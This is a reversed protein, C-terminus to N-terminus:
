RQYLQCAFMIELLEKPPLGEVESGVAVLSASKMDDPTRHSEVVSSNSTTSDETGANFIDHPFSPFSIPNAGAVTLDRNPRNPSPTSAISPPSKLAIFALNDLGSVKRHNKPSHNRQTDINVACGTPQQPSLYVNGNFFTNHLPRNESESARQSVLSKSDVSRHRDSPREDLPATLSYKNHNGKQLAERHEELLAELEGSLLSCAKIRTAVLATRYNPSMDPSYDPSVTRTIDVTWGQIDNSPALSTPLPSFVWNLVTPANPSGETADCKRKAVLFVDICVRRILIGLQFM